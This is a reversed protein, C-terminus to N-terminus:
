YRGRGGDQLSIARMSMAAALNSLFMLVSFVCFGVAMILHLKSRVLGISFFACFFSFLHLGGLGSQRLKVSAFEYMPLACMPSVCSGAAEEASGVVFSLCGKISPCM